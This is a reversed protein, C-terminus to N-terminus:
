HARMERRQLKKSGIYLRLMTKTSEEGMVIIIDLVLKQRQNTKLRQGPSGAFLKQM